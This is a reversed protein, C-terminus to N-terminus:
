KLTPRCATALFLTMTCVFLGRASLDDIDDCILQGQADTLYGAQVSASVAHNLIGAKAEDGKNLSLLHPTVAVDEFGAEVLLRPLNSGIRPNASFELMSMVATRALDATHSNSTSFVTAGLDPSLIVIRRGPRLVRHAEALATMPDHLHNFVREARYWQMSGDDFPLDYASGLRFDCDPYRHRATSVMTENIDVGIAEIGRQQLQHVVLGVGSGVDVGVGATDAFTEYTKERLSIVSSMQDTQDLFSVYEDPAAADDIAEWGQMLSSIMACEWRKRNAVNSTVPPKCLSYRRLEM